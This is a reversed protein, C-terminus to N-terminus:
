AGHQFSGEKKKKRSTKTALSAALLKETNRLLMSGESKKWYTEDILSSSGGLVWLGWGVFLFAVFGWVFCVVFVLWV